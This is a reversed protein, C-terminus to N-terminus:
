SDEPQSIAERCGRRKARHPQYNHVAGFVSPQMPLLQAVAIGCILETFQGALDLIGFPRRDTGFVLLAAGHNGKSQSRCKQFVGCGNRNHTLGLRRLRPRSTIKQSVDLGVFRRTM